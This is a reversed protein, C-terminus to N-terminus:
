RDQHSHFADGEKRKASILSPASFSGIWDNVSRCVVRSERRDVGNLSAVGCARVPLVLHGKKDMIVVLSPSFPQLRIQPAVNLMQFRKKVWSRLFKLYVSYIKQKTTRDNKRGLGDSTVVRFQGDRRAKMSTPCYKQVKEHFAHDM